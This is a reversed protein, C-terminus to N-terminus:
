SGSFQRNNIFPHELAKSVGDRGFIHGRRFGEGHVLRLLEDLATAFEDQSEIRRVPDLREAAMFVRQRLRGEEPTKYERMKELGSKTM